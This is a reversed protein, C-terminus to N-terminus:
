PFFLSTRNWDLQYRRRYIFIQLLAADKIGPAKEFRSNLDIGVCKAADSASGARFWEGLRPLDSPGIGGSLLFPTTGEYAALLNWDFPQGTGGYQPSKTDFLFYDAVDAYDATARLDEVTAIGISKIISTTRLAAKLQRCFAPSEHGHLQVLDLRFQQVRLLIDDLSADVFVGVRKCATPLYAPPEAVYRKSGPWFIFGMWDPGAQEVARINDPDRMGCVKIIM